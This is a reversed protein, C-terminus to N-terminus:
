LINRPLRRMRMLCYKLFLGWLTQMRESCDRMDYSQALVKEIGKGQLRQNHIYWFMFPLLQRYSKESVPLLYYEEKEYEKQNHYVGSLNFYYTIRREAKITHEQLLKECM